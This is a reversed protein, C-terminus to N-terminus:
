TSQGETHLFESLKTSLRQCQNELTMVNTRLSHVEEELERIRQIRRHERDEYESLDKRLRDNHAEVSKIVGELITLQKQLSDMDTLKVDSLIKRRDRLWGVIVPLLGGIGLATILELIGFSM